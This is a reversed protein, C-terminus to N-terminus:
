IVGGNNGGARGCSRNDHNSGGSSEGAVFGEPNGLLSLISFPWLM